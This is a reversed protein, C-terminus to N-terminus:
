GIRVSFYRKSFGRPLYGPNWYAWLSGWDATPRVRLRGVASGIRDGLFASYRMKKLVQEGPVPSLQAIIRTHEPIPKM